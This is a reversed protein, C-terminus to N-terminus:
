HSILFALTAAVVVTWLVSIALWYHPDLKM